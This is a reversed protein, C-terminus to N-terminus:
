NRVVRVPGISLDLGGSETGANGDVLIVQIPCAPTVTFAGRVITSEALEATRSFLLTPANAACTVRWTVKSLPGPNDTRQEASFSYTGPPLLLIKRAIPGSFTSELQAELQLRDEAATVFTSNVGDLV